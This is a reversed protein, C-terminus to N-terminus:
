YWLRCPPKVSAIYEEVTFKKDLLTQTVPHTREGKLLDNVVNKWPFEEVLTEVGDYEDIRFEWHEPLEQVRLSACIGSVRLGESEWEEFLAIVRPDTRLRVGAPTRGHATLRFWKRTADERFCITTDFQSYGPCFPKIYAAYNPHSIYEEEEEPEGWFSRDGPYRRFLEAMFENSFGFGGYCTNVIVKQM